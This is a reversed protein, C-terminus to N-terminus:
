DDKACFLDRATKRPLLEKPTLAACGGVARRFEETYDVALSDLEKLTTPRGDWLLLPMGNFPPLAGGSPMSESLPGPSLTLEAGAATDRPM